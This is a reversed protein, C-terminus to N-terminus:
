SSLICRNSKSNSTSSISSRIRSHFIFNFLIFCAFCLLLVFFFCFLIFIFLFLYFFPFLYIAITNRFANYSNSFFCLNLCCSSRIFKQIFCDVTFSDIEKKRNKRIRKKQKEKIRDNVIDIYIMIKDANNKNNNPEKM